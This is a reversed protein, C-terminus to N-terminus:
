ARKWLRHGETWLVIPLATDILHWITFDGGDNVMANFWNPVFAITLAVAAYFMRRAGPDSGNASRRQWTTLLLLLLAAAMFWDLVNWIDLNAAEGNDGPGYFPYAFFNAVVAAAVLKMYIAVPKSYAM